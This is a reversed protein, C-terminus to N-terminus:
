GHPGTANGGLLPSTNEAPNHPMCACLMAPLPVMPLTKTLIQMRLDSFTPQELDHVLVDAQRFYMFLKLQHLRLVKTAFSTDVRCHMDLM